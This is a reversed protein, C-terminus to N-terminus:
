KFPALRTVVVFLKVGAGLGRSLVFSVDRSKTTTIAITTIPAPAAPNKRLAGREVWVELELLLLEAPVDTELLLEVAPGKL